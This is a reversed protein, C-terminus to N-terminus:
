PTVIITVTPATIGGFTATLTTSGGSVGIVEGPQNISDAVALFNESGVMWATADRTVNIPSVGSYTAMVTCPVQNGVSVAPCSVAVSLLTPATTVTVTTADTKDGYTATITPLAAGSTATVGTIRGAALDSTGLTVKNSDSTWVALASVDQEAGNSFRATVILPTSTGILLTPSVPTIAISTVAPAPPTTITLAIDRTIGSAKASITTGASTAGTVANLWALNGGAPTVTAFAADTTWTVAGTIDRQSNNSFTGTATIRAKTGNVLTPTAPTVAISNLTGGTVTLNTEGRAGDKTASVTAAGPALTLAVSGSMIALTENSSSWSVQSTIDATTGDSYTGTATFQKTTVSLVTPNPPSVSIATVVPNTVSMDASGIVDIGGGGSNFTASIIATGSAAVAKALGKSSELDSITAVAEASSAWTADFTIDQVSSTAGDLFTGLAIFQHTKGKPVLAPPAAVAISSITAASVTIPITASVGKVTATVVVSGTSVGKVRNPVSTLGFAAVSPVNSSWTVQDTVDDKFYGSFDGEVTLRTTTNAAITSYEATITISTLPTIDNERTPTGNWGCGTVLLVMVIGCWVLKGM